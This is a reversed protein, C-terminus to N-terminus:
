QTAGTASRLLGLTKPDAAALAREYASVFTSGQARAAAAEARHLANRAPLLEGQALYLLSRELWAPVCNPELIVARNFAQWAGQSDGLMRLAQGEGVAAWVDLPNVERARGFARAAATAVDSEGSLAARRMRINGLVRWGRGYRPRAACARWV